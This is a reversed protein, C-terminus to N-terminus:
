PRCTVKSAILDKLCGTKWVPQQFLDCELCDLHRAKVSITFAFVDDHDRVTEGNTDGKQIIPAVIELDGTSSKRTSKSTKRLEHLEHLELPVPPRAELNRVGVLRGHSTLQGFVMHNRDEKPFLQGIPM